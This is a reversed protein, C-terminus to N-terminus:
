KALPGFIQATMDFLTIKGKWKPNLLDQLSTIEGEKVMDTNRAVYKQYNALMALFM